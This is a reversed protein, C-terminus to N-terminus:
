IFGLFNGVFLGGGKFALQYYKLVIKLVLQKFLHFIDWRKKHTSNQMINWFIYFLLCFMKDSNLSLLLLYSSQPFNFIWKKHKKYIRAHQFSCFFFKWKPIRTLLSSILLCMPTDLMFEPNISEGRYNKANKARAKKSSKKTGQPFYLLM